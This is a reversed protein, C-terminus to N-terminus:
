VTLTATRPQLRVHWYAINIMSVSLLTNSYTFIVRKLRGNPLIRIGHRKRKKAYTNSYRSIDTDPLANVRGSM